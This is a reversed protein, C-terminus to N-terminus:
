FVKDIFTEVVKGKGIWKSKFVKEVMRLEEDGVSPEYMQIM